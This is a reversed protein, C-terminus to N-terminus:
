ASRSIFRKMSAHAGWATIVRSSASTFGSSLRTIDAVGLRAPDATPSPSVRTTRVSTDPDTARPMTTLGCTFPAVPCSLAYATSLPAILARTPTPRSMRGPLSSPLDSSSAEPTSAPRPSAVSAKSSAVRPQSCARLAYSVAVSEMILSWRARSRTPTPVPESLTRMSGADTRESASSVRCARRATLVRSVAASAALMSM